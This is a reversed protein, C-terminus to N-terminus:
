PKGGIVTSAEREILKHAQELLKPSLAAPPRTDTAKAIAADIRHRAMSPITQLGDRKCDEDADRVMVLAELLDPAAAILHANAGSETGETFGEVQCIAGYETGANPADSRIRRQNPTAGKGEVKEALKWPGPTHQTSM